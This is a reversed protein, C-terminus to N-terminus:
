NKFVGIEGDEGARQVVARPMHEVRFCEGRCLGAYADDIDRATRHDIFGGQGGCQVATM